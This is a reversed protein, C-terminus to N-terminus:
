RFSNRAMDRIALLLEAGCNFLVAMILFAIAPVISVFFIGVGSSSSINVGAVGLVFCGIAAIYGLMAFIGLIFSMAQLARYNPPPGHVASRSPASTPQYNLIEDRVAERVEDIEPAAAAEAAARPVIRSVLLGRAQAQRAVHDANQGDLLLNVELGTKKDAAEILFKPM